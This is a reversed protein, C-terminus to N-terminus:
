KYAAEIVDAAARIDAVLKLMALRAVDGAPLGQVDPTPSPAITAKYEHLKKGCLTVPSECERNDGEAFVIKGITLVYAGTEQSAFQFPVDGITGALAFSNGLTAPNMGSQAKLVTCGSPFSDAIERRIAFRNSDIVQAM